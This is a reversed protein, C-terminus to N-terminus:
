VHCDPQKHRVTDMRELAYFYSVVMPTIEPDRQILGM